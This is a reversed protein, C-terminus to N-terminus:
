STNSLILSEEYTPLRLLCGCKLPIAVSLQAVLSNMSICSICAFLTVKIATLTLRMQSGADQTAM